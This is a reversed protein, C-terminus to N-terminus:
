PRCENQLFLCMVALGSFTVRAWTDSVVFVAFVCFGAMVFFWLRMALYFGREILSM